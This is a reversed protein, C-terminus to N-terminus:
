KAVVVRFDSRKGNAFDVHFLYTGNAMNALDVAMTENAAVAVKQESVLTGDVGFIRLVAADNHGKMPIRLHGSTPNPFPTLEVRDNNEAIGIVSSAAVTKASVSPCGSLGTFSNYWTTGVQILTTTQLLTDQNISYDITTNWGHQILSDTTQVCFLYLSDNELILPADFPIFVPVRNLDEEYTYTGAQLQPLIPLSPRTFPSAISDSWTYAYASVMVNTMLTDRPASRDISTGTFYLGTVAVESAQSSKFSLCTNFPGDGFSGTVAFYDSVPLGTTDNMPVFSILDTANFSFSYSNDYPVEDLEDMEATYTITYNGDFNDLALDPLLVFAEAGSNFNTQGAVENYVETSGQTVVARLRASPLIDSGLNTIWGGMPITWASANAVLSPIAAPNPVLFDHAGMSLNYPYLGFNNGILAVVSETEMVARITAGDEQGIQAVPITVQPGYTGGAMGAPAGPQNNIILVAAAGANQANLAKLSFNCVGRYIVAINDELEEPNAITECGLSDAASGDRAVVLAGIRYYGPANLDSVGWTSAADESVSPAHTHEYVRAISAPDLVQVVAQGQGYALGSLACFALTSLQKEM